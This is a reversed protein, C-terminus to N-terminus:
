RHQQKTHAEKKEAVRAEVYNMVEQHSHLDLKKYIRLIHARATHNSIVLEQEIFSANRGKAILALVEHERKTLGAEAAVDEVATKWVGPIHPAQEAIAEASDALLDSASWVHHSGLGLVSIINISLMSAITFADLSEISGSLLLLSGVFLGVLLFVFLIFSYGMPFLLPLAFCHYYDFMMCFSVHLFSCFGIALVLLSVFSSQMLLILSLGAIMFLLALKAHVELSRRPNFLELCAIIVGSLACGVFFGLQSLGRDLGGVHLLFLCGFILGLACVFVALYVLPFVLLGYSCSARHDLWEKDAVRFQKAYLVGMAACGIVVLVLTLMTTSTRGFVFGFSSDLVAGLSMSIPVTLTQLKSIGPASASQLGAWLVISSLILFGIESGTQFTTAGVLARFFAAFLFGLGALSLVAAKSHLAERLTCLATNPIGSM